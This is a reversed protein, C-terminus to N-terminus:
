LPFPVPRVSHSLTSAWGRSTRVVHRQKHILVKINHVSSKHLPIAWLLDKTHTDIVVRCRRACCGVGGRGRCHVCLFFALPPTRRAHSPARAARARLRDLVYLETTCPNYERYEVIDGGVSERTRELPLRLDSWTWAVRRITGPSANGEDSCTGTTQQVEGHSLPPLPLPRARSAARPEAGRSM